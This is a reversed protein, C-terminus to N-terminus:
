RLAEMASRHIRCRLCSKHAIFDDVFRLCSMLAWFDDIFFSERSGKFDDVFNTGRSVCLNSLAFLEQSSQFWRLFSLRQRTLLAEVALTHIWFRLCSKHALFNDVFRLCSMHPKYIMLSFQTEGWDSIMLLILEVALAHTRCHLFSKHAWFDDFFVSVSDLWFDDDFGIPCSVRPISLVFLEQPSLFWWHIAFLM